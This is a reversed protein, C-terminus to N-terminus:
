WSMPMYSAVVWVDVIWVDVSSLELIDPIKQFRQCDVRLEGKFNLRINPVILSGLLPNLTWPETALRIVIVAVMRGVRTDDTVGAWITSTRSSRPHVTTALM